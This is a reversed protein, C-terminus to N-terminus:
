QVYTSSYTLSFYVVRTAFRSHLVYLRICIYLSPCPLALHHVCYPFINFLFRQSTYVLKNLKVIKKLNEYFYDSFILLPILILTKKSNLVRSRKQDALINLNLVKNNQTWKTNMLKM